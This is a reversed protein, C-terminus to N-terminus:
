NNAENNEGVEIYKINGVSDVVKALCKDQVEITTLENNPKIIYKVRNFKIIVFNTNIIKVVKPIIEYKVGYVNDKRLVYINNCNYNKLNKM